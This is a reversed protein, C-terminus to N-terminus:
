HMHTESLSEDVFHRFATECCMVARSPRRAAGASFEALIAVKKVLHGRPAWRFGRARRSSGALPGVAFRLNVLILRFGHVLTIHARPTSALTHPACAECPASLITRGCPKSPVADRRWSQQAATTCVAPPSSSVLISYPKISVSCLRALPFASSHVRLRAHDGPLDGAKPPQMCSAQM